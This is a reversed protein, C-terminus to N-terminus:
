YVVLQDLSISGTKLLEQPILKDFGLTQLKQYLEPRSYVSFKIYLQDNFLSDITSKSVKKNEIESLTKAIEQSSLNAMFLYIVQKERRSLSIKEGLTDISSSLAHQLVTEINIKGIGFCYCFIGVTNQTEPNIIPIKHTLYPTIKNRFRNIKLAMRIKKNEIVDKEEQDIIEKISQDDDYLPLWVAQGILIEKKIGILDTWYESAYIYKGDKDKVILIQQPLAKDILSISQIFKELFAKDSM